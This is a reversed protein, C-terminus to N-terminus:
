VVKIVVEHVVKECNVPKLFKETLEAKVKLWDIDTSRNDLYYDAYIKNSTEFDLFPANENVAHFRIDHKNLYNLANRLVQDTRCTWLILFFHQRMWLLVEKSNPMLDFDFKLHAHRVDKVITGDFDVAIIKPHSKLAESM